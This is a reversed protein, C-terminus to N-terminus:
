INNIKDWLKRGSIGTLHNSYSEYWLVRTENGLVQMEDTLV